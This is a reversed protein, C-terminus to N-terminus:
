RLQRLNYVSALTNMETRVRAWLHETNGRLRRNRVARNIDEAVNLVSSVQTRTEQYRDTRDFEQRLLDLANEFDRARQNLNDERRTGDVRSNDLSRDFSRVFRDSQNELRRIIQEVQAKSYGTSRARRGYQAAAPISASAVMLFAVAAMIVKSINKGM